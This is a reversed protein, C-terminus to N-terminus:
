IKRNSYYNEAFRGFEFLSSLIITEVYFEQGAEEAPSWLKTNKHVGHINLYTSAYSIETIYM